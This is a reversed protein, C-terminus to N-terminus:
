YYGDDQQQQARQRKQPGPAADRDNNDELVPAGNALMGCRVILTGTAPNISYGIINTKPDPNGILRMYMNPGDIFENFGKIILAYYGNKAMPRIDLEPASDELTCVAYIAANVSPVDEERVENMDYRKALKEGIKRVVSRM